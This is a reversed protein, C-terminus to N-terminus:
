RTPGAPVIGTLDLTWLAAGRVSPDPYALYRGDPSLSYFWTPGAEPPTLISVRGDRLSVHGIRATANEGLIYTLGDDDRTWSLQYLYEVGTEILRSSAPVGSTPLEAIRIGSDTETWALSRGDRSWLLNSFFLSRPRAFGAVRRAPAEPGDAWYIRISDAAPETWAVRPGAVAMEAAAAVAAPFSRILRAARGPTRARLEVRDGAPEFYLFDTGEAGAGGGAGAAAEFPASEALNASLETRSGDSLRLAVLRQRDTAADRTVYAIHTPTVGQHWQPAVGDDPLSFTRSPTGDIPAVRRLRRGGEDVVAIVAQGGASWGVPAHYSTDTTVQRAPGGAIPVIRIPAVDDSEYGFLTRGDASVNTVGGTPPLRLTALIRGDFSVLSVSPLSRGASPAAATSLVVYRDRVNVASVPGTFRHVVVPTGGDVPTRVLTRTTSQRERVVSYVERSDASWTHASAIFPLTALRRGRGGEVPVLWIRASDKQADPEHLLVWRGDPSPSLGSTPEIALQRPTGTARGTGPDFPMVMAYNNRDGSRAPRSSVFALRDGGPLFEARFDWHGASTLRQPEGGATSVSWLSSGTGEERSFVFWRGDPSLTGHPGTFTTEALRVRRIAPEVPAPVQARAGSPHLFVALVFAVVNGFRGVRM